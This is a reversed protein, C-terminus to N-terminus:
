RRPNRGPRASGLDAAYAALLRVDVADVSTGRAELWSAFQELDVRYARRTAESLAPSALYREIAAATQM